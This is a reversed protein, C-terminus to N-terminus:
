TTYEANLQVYDYSLDCGLATASHGGACLDVGITVTDRRMLEELAALDLDDIAGGDYAVIDGFRIEVRSQDVVDAGATKGIAMAVRGWNPDAGFVATKVLPSAAIGRAVERALDSTPAGRVEVAILKTAGEAGRAVDRALDVAVDTLAAAFGAPDVPGAVGNALIAATDSTSTDTDVTVMNFSVDVAARLCRDLEAAPVLADTFFYALLTAMHPEIMAAGKCVGVLTAAGVRASRVKPSKDTTMIAEAFRDLGGPQLGRVLTPVAARLRDMPLPRGIVGTASLLVDAPQAGLGAAVRDILERADEDGRPGNAVNANKSVVLVAQLRGDAVHERGITVQPGCFSNRTFVAAAVAPVDSVVLSFDLTEDKVGANMVSSRFGRLRALDSSLANTM